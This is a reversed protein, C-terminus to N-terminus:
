FHKVAHNTIFHVSMLAIQGPVSFGVISRRIRAPYAELREGPPVFEIDVYLVVM